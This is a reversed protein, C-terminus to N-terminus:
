AAKAQLKIGIAGLVRLITAFEAKADGGLAKYLSARTLGADRAIRTMGQARAVDGLAAAILAPDGDELAANIFSVMAKKTTLRETPDWPITKTKAAM